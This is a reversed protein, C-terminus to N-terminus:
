SRIRASTKLVRVDSGYVLRLSVIIKFFIGCMSDEKKMYQYFLPLHVMLDQIM